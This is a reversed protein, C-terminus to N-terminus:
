GGTSQGPTTTVTHRIPSAYFIIGGVRIGGFGDGLSAGYIETIPIDEGVTTLQIDGQLKNKDIPKPKPAMVVQLVYSAAASAASVALSIILATTGSIPDALIAYHLGFLLVFASPFSRWLQRNM